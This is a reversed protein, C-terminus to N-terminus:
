EPCAHVGRVPVDFAVLVLVERAGVWWSHRDSQFAELAIVCYERVGALLLEAVEPLFGEGALTCSSSDATRESIAVEGPGDTLLKM